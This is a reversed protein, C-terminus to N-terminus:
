YFKWLTVVLMLLFFLPFYIAKFIQNNNFDFIASKDKTYTILNFTSIIAIFYTVYYFYEIYILDATVIEKRLDIHSFILVFFFAAISEIIGERENTKECAHILIFMIILTVFIPILYSAFANLLIRRLNINYHLVPVEEFLGKAGYGFDTDYTELSYSFYGQIRSPM